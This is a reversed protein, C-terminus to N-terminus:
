TFTENGFFGIDSLWGAYTLVVQFIEQPHLDPSAGHGHSLTAPGATEKLSM